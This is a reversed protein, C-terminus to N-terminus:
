LPLSELELEDAAEDDVAAALVAGVGAVVGTDEKVDDVVAEAETTVLTPGPLVITTVIGADCCLPSDEGGDGLGSCLLEGFTPPMAAPTTTPTTAAAANIAPRTKQSRCLRLCAASSSYLRDFWIELKMRPPLSSSLGGGVAYLLMDSERNSGSAPLLFLAPLM